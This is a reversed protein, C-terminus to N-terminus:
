RYKEIAEFLAVLNEIPIKAQINHISNFVFGGGKRFIEMREKVENDIESPTGFPLTKQTDIGAGWFVAEKGYENKLIKPHMDAASCQVPNFIDFGSESFNKYFAKVSGCSHIFTKWKTYKHVWDNIRKHFPKYLSDYQKPDILPGNQSGFDTGSLFIVSIKNGISNYVKNLNEIGINCQYEYIQKLFDPRMISAMYWLEVDRIGKPHKLHLGPVLAIDGFSAVGYPLLIAKDTTNHLYDAQENYYDLEEDSILGFEEINDELKLNNIDIEEQRIIADFYYGGAPMRASPSVSTDGKPHSFLIGENNKETIFKEPVLLPTGDSFEWEKWNENKYGFMNVLGNLPVVDLGLRNIMDQKIEGLMQYPEVVKVPEEKLGLAKRLLYVSSVHMGTLPSGGLDVPVRDTERHELALKIRERSNM